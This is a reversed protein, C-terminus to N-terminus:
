TREENGTIDNSQISHGFLSSPGSAPSFIRSSFTLTKSDIGGTVKSSTNRPWYSPYVSSSVIVFLSELQGVKAIKRSKMFLGRQAPTGIMKLAPFAHLYPAKKVTEQEDQHVFSVSM